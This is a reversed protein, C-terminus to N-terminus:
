ERTKRAVKAQSEFAVTQWGDRARRDEIREDIADGGDGRGGGTKGTIKKKREQWKTLRAKM